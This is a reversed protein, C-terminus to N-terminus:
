RKILWIVMNALYVVFATVSAALTIVALVKLVLM